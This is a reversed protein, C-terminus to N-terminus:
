RTFLGKVLAPQLACRNSGVNCGYGLNRSMWCINNGDPCGYNGGQTGHWGISNGSGYYNFMGFGAYTSCGHSCVDGADYNVTGYSDEYAWGSQNSTLSSYSVSTSRYNVMWQTGQNSSGETLSLFVVMKETVQFSASNLDSGSAFGGSVDGVTGLNSTISTSWQSQSKIYSQVTWGGGNISM